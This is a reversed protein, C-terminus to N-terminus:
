YGNSVYAALRRARYMDRCLLVIRGFGPVLLESINRLDTIFTEACFLTDYQSSAMTLDSLDKSLGPVNSYVSYVAPM